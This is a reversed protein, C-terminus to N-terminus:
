IGSFIKKKHQDDVAQENDQAEEIVEVAQENDQAEEIVEVAQEIVNEPSICKKGIKILLLLFKYTKYKKNRRNFSM